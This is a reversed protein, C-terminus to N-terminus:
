DRFCGLAAPLPSAAIDPKLPAAVQYDRFGRERDQGGGFHRRKLPAAVQYDRFGCIASPRRDTPWAEIPGRSSLRPFM